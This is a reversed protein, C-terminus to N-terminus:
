SVPSFKSGLETLIQNQQATNEQRILELREPSKRPIPPPTRTPARSLCDTSSLCPQKDNLEPTNWDSADALVAEQLNLSAIDLESSFSGAHVRVQGSNVDRLVIDEDDEEPDSFLGAIGRLRLEGFTKKRRLQHKPLRTPSTIISSRSSSAEEFIGALSHAPSEFDATASSSPAGPANPLSSGPLDVYKSTAGPFSFKHLNEPSHEFLLPRRYPKQAGPPPFYDLILLPERPVRSTQFGVPSTVAPKEFHGQVAESRQNLDISGVNPRQPTSPISKTYSSAKSGRYRQRDLELEELGYKSVAEQLAPSTIPEPPEEEPLDDGFLLTAAQDWSEKRYQPPNSFPDKSPPWPHQDDSFSGLDVSKQLRRPRARPLPLSSLTDSNPDQHLFSGLWPSGNDKSSDDFPSPRSPDRQHSLRTTPDVELSSSSRLRSYQSELSPFYRPTRDRDVPRLHQVPRRTHEREPSPTPLTGFPTPFLDAPTSPSFRPPPDAHPKGPSYYAAWDQSTQPTYIYHDDVHAEEGSYSLVPDGGGLFDRQVSESISDSPTRRLESTPSPVRSAQAAALIRLLSSYSGSGSAAPTGSTASPTESGGPSTNLSPVFSSDPLRAFGVFITHHLAFTVKRPAPLFPVEIDVETVSPQLSHLGPVPVPETSQKLGIPQQLLESHQPIETSKIPAPKTSSLEAPPSQVRSSQANSTTM